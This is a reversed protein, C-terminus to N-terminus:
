AWPAHGFQVILDAETSPIDCAGFCSGLWISFIAGNSIKDQLYDVIVTAYLKFGDPLQILIKPNKKDLKEISQVLKDLQLDYKKEIDDLDIKM